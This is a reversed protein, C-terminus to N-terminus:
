ALQEFASIIGLGVSRHYNRAIHLPAGQYVYLRTEGKNEITNTYKDLQELQLGVIVLQSKLYLIKSTFYKLRLISAAM